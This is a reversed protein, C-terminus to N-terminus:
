QIPQDLWPDSDGIVPWVYYRDDPLRDIVLRYNTADVSASDGTYSCYIAVSDYGGERVEINNCRCSCEFSPTAQNVNRTDCRLWVIEVTPFVTLSYHLGGLEFGVEYHLRGGEQDYTVFSTGVLHEIDKQKWNIM